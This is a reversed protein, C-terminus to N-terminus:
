RAPISPTMTPLTLNYHYGDHHPDLAELQAAVDDCQRNLEIAGCMGDRCSWSAGRCAAVNITTLSVNEVLSATPAPPEIPKGDSIMRGTFPAVRAHFNGILALVPGAELAEGLMSIRNAMGRRRDIGAADFEVDDLTIIDISGGAARIMRISELLALIAESRRGDSNASPVQWFDGAVLKNRAPRSGDSKMFADIREQEQIPIELAITVPGDKALISALSAVVAPTEANGHLEGIVLVSQRDYVDLIAGTADSLWSEAQAPSVTVLLIVAISAAWYVRRISEFKAHM